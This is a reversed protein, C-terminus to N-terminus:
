NLVETWHCGFDAFFKESLEALQKDSCFGSNCLDALEQARQYIDTEREM